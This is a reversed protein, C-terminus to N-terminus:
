RHYSGYQHESETTTGKSALSPAHERVARLKENAIGALRDVQGKVRERTQKGPAPALVLAAGAGALAGLSLYAVREWFHSRRRELGVSGIVGDTDIHSITRLLRGTALAAGLPLLYKKTMSFGTEKERRIKRPADVKWEDEEKLPTLLSSIRLAYRDM